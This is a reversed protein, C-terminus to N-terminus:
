EARVVMSFAKEAFNAWRSNGDACIGLTTKQLFSEGLTVARHKSSHSEATL